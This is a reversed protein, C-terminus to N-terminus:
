KYMYWELIDLYGKRLPGSIGEEYPGKAKNLPERQTKPGKTRKGPPEPSMSVQVHGIKFEM